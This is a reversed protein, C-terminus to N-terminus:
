TIKVNKILINIIAGIIRTISDRAGSTDSMGNFSTLDAAFASGTLAIGEFSGMIGWVTGFLGIFPATSASISLWSLNKEM